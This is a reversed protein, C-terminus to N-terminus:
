IEKMKKGVSEIEDSLKKIKENSMTSDPADGGARLSNIKM